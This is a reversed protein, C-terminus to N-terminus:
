GIVGLVNRSNIEKGDWGCGKPHEIDQQNQMVLPSVNNM